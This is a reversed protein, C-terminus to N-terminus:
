RKARIYEVSCDRLPELKGGLHGAGGDPIPIEAGVSDHPIFFHKREISKFLSFHSIVSPGASDQRLIEGLLGRDKLLRRPRTSAALPVMTAIVACAM